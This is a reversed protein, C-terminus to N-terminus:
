SFHQERRGFTGLQEAPGNQICAVFRIWRGHGTPISTSSPGFYAPAESTRHIVKNSADYVTYCAALSQMSLTALIIAFTTRIM